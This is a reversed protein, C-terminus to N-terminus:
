QPKAAVPTPAARPPETEGVWGFERSLNAAAARVLKSKEKLLANTLRWIPGSIGVAGQVQGAFNYVPVAVCRVEANFEGDDYAAGTRRVLEDAPPFWTPHPFPGNGPGLDAATVVTVGPPAGSTDIGVIRGHAQPSRVIAVHLAGPVRLDDVYAGGGSVLRPDELRRISRGTVPAGDGPHAAHDDPVRHMM